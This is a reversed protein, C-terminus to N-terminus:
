VALRTVIINPPHYDLNTHLDIGRTVKECINVILKCLSVDFNLHLKSASYIFAMRSALRAATRPVVPETLAPKGTCRFQM